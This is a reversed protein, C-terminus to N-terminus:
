LKLLVGAVKEAAQRIDFHMEVAKRAAIGLRARLGADNMLQQLCDIWEAESGALMGNEGHRIIQKQVGVPSAVVAMGCAMYQLLKVACKGREWPTDPLPAVGIGIQALEDLETELRWQRFEAPLDLKGSAIVRPRIGLKEFVPKLSRLYPLTTRSGIWGVTAGGIAQPYRAVDVCTPVVTVSRNFRAAYEALCDNGAIVAAARRMTDQVFRERHLLRLLPNGGVRPLWIADDFDFVVPKDAALWHEVCTTVGPLFGKQVVVAHHEDARQWQSPSRLPAVTPIIGLWEM